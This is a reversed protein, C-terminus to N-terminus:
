NVGLYEELTLGSNHVKTATDIGLYRVHWAEYIYGTIDTKGKPYRIIFGYKYCNDALWKAEDTYQFSDSTSGLDFALGTQHESQGPKASYMNAAAEGDRQVYRNYLTVQTNYSRFGSVIPLSLGLSTADAQLEKLHSLAESNVGPNYDSPLNYKKNVLLIGNIYTIGNTVEKTKEYIIVTRIVSIANGSSDTVSYKIEYTGTKKTNVEGEVTVKKTVDGDYDDTAGYGPEEYSEGLKISIKSDGVLTIVPNTKDVVNIIRYLKLTYYDSIKAKYSIVYNGLKDEKYNSSVKINKNEKNNVILKAGEDTYKTGFSVDTNDDGNINFVSYGKKHDTDYTKILNNCSGSKTTRRRYTKGSKYYGEKLLDKALSDLVLKNSSSITINETMNCYLLENKFTIKNNLKYNTTNNEYKRETKFVPLMFLLKLLIFIVLLIILAFLVMRLIKKKKNKHKM